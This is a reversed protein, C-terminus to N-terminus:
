PGTFGRFSRCANDTRRASHQVARATRYGAGRLQGLADFVFVRAQVKDIIIFPLKGNDTSNMVWDALKRSEPTSVEQGFNAINPAVVVNGGVVASPVSIPASPLNQAAAVPLLTAGYMFSGLVAAQALLTCASSALRSQLFSASCQSQTTTVENPMTFKKQLLYYMEHRVFRPVYKFDRATRDLNVCTLERKYGM